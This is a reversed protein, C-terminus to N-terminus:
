MAIPAGKQCRIVKMSWKMPKGIVTLCDFRLPTEGRQQMQALLGDALPIPKSRENVSLPALLEPLLSLCRYETETRKAIENSFLYIVQKSGAQRGAHM